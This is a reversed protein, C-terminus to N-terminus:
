TSQETDLRWCCATPMLGNYKSSGLFGQGTKGAHVLKWYKKAAIENYRDGQPKTSDVIAHMHQLEEDTLEIDKSAWNEELRGPKTTEPISIMGRAAVWALIIQPLTCKKREAVLLVL